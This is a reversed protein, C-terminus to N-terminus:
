ANETDETEVMNRLIGIGEIEAEIRDGKELWVPNEWGAIVGPPSGSTIIDGPELTMNSWWSVLDRPSYIMDGANASQRVIGNVRLEMRLVAPDPIEDRTVLWPGLPCSSDFSKGLLIVKNAHERSQIDRASIDNFVTYGAIYKDAQEPTVNKARKGIVIGLEIEYDLQRTFRPRVIPADPGVVCSPAQLFGTPHDFHFNGWNHAQWEPANWQTLEKLHGGFNCSTHIIKGPRPVPALLTVDKLAFIHAESASQMLTRVEDLGGEGLALLALMDSPLAGNSAGAVDLVGDNVVAGVSRRANPGNEFSVLKM